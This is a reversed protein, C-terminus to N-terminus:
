RGHGSTYRSRRLAQRFAEYPRANLCTDATLGARRAMILGWRKLALGRPSHADSCVAVLIGRDRAKRAHGPRLDLRDAQGNIEMAVGHAAAADLVADIDLDAGDRRLLKRGTPHGLMDVWPNEIAKVVRATIAARPQTLGSHLSAIVFDLSALVEDDLDMRGDALIDCEIGAMVRIGSLRRDLARIAEAHELARANDLGNVMALANSHDTIVIYDLGADRAAAAMAEADVKGDSATTHMHLDGRLDDWELLRPLRGSAALELEDGGDRLEPPVWALGLATYLADETDAAVRTRGRSLGSEDFTLGRTGALAQLQTLHADSGTQWVLTAGFDTARAVVLRASMGGWLRARVGDPADEAAEVLSYGRFAEVVAALDPLSGAAVIDIGTCVEAGRRTGGALAVHAGPVAASLHAALAEGRELCDPLLHRGAAHRGAAIAKLLTAEKKPGFGRLDRLRGARIATELDTASAIGMERWLTILTRPGIGPLRKVELLTVPTKARLDDLAQLRGTRAIEDLRAALDKGIGPLARREAPSLAEVPSPLAAILEAANRYARVKFPNEEGIEMLDAAESFMRAITLNDTTM